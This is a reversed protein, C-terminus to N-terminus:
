GAIRRVLPEVRDELFRRLRLNVLEPMEIPATHSGTPISLLESGPIRSHMVDSLWAPTFGDNEGAVILTPVDIRPLHALNDNEGASKALNFFLETDMGALHSLYPRFDEKRVLDGNVDTRVAVHYALETDLALSWAKQVLRPFRRVFRHVLPFALASAASDHFTDIVRGYSGCMPVLALVRDPHRRHAELIVQTGISHGVLVARELGQADLVSVLDDVLDGITHRAPDRPRESQGHGRYHFRVVRHTPAFDEVLYKWVYGDCGLGDACVIAQAGQGTAYHHIRTGDASAAFASTTTLYPASAPALPAKSM